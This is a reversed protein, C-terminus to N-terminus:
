SAIGKQGGLATRRGLNLGAGAERGAARASPDQTQRYSGSSRLKTNAKAWREVSATRQEVRALAQNVRMLETGASSRAQQAFAEHQAKLKADIAEVVGIRFNDRWTKGQGRGAEAALRETERELWAFLYRVTEADSHRGIIKLNGGTRYVKCGNYKAITMALQGRWRRLQPAVHLPSSGFDMIPEDDVSDVPNADDLALLAASLNHEDILQQAKAAALGAEHANNNASSLRLLKQVKSVINEVTM